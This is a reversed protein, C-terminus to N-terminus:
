KVKGFENIIMSFMILQLQKFLTLINICLLAKIAHAVNYYM